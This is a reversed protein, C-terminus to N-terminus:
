WKKPPFAIPNWKEGADETKFIGNAVSSVYITKPKQPHYSISLIDSSSISTKEDIKSKVEFSHGGDSTKWLSGIVAESNFVGSTGSTKNNEDKKQKSLSKPLIPLSCGSLVAFALIVSMLFLIKRTM